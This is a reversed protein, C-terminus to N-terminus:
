LCAVAVAAAAYVTVITLLHVWWRKPYGKRNPPHWPQRSFFLDVVRSVWRTRRASTPEPNIAVKRVPQVEEPLVRYGQVRYRLTVAHPRQRSSLKRVSKTRCESTRGTQMIM